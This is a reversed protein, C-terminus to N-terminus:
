VTIPNLLYLKKYKSNEHETNICSHVDSSIAIVQLSDPYMGLTNKMLHVISGEIQKTGDDSELAACIDPICLAMSMPYQYVRANSGREIEDFIDNILM